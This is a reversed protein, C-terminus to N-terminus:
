AATGHLAIEVLEIVRQWTIGSLQDASLPHGEETVEILPISGVPQTHVLTKLNLTEPYGPLSTQLWGFYAPENVREPDHWVENTRWFNAESLTTWVDWCFVETSDIVPIEIRGRIFFHTDDIICLSETLEIRSEREDAPISFYYAPFQAGFCMPFEAHFEGCKSCTFGDM